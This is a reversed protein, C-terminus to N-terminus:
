RFRGRRARRRFPPPLPDGRRCLRLAGRHAGAPPDPPGGQELFFDGRGSYGISRVTSALLLLADMRTRTGPAPSGTRPQAARRGALVFQLQAGPVARRRAAAAGAQHRRRHRASADREDSIVIRPTKRRGLHAEVLDALYHVNVIAREVGVAALGDLCHDILARGGVKVLPKPTVASLPRMRKGQGAALVMATEPVGM